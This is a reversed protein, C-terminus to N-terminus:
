QQNSGGEGAETMKTAYDSMKMRHNNVEHLLLKAAIRSRLNDMQMQHNEDNEPLLGTKWQATTLGEYLLEVDEMQLNEVDNEMQINIMQQFKEYQAEVKKEFEKTKDELIVEEEKEQTSFISRGLINEDETLAVSPDVPKKVYKSRLGRKKKMESLIKMKEYTPSTVLDLTSQSGQLSNDIGFVPSEEAVIEVDDEDNSHTEKRYSEENEDSLQSGDDNEDNYESSSSSLYEPMDPEKFIERMRQKLQLQKEDDQFKILNENIKKEIESKEILINHINEELM